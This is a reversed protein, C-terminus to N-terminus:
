RTVFNRLRQMQEKRRYRVLEAPVQREVRSLAAWTYGAMRLLGGVLIPPRTTQYVCRFFEFIADGGLVFDKKGGTWAVMFPNETATGMRRHHAYTKELFTRTRWGKMRATIVAVHDIGGIKRPIYGGIEDFCERRFMQIQGSVHEISTFRYDYQFSGETFPTGAVGLRPDEAFKRM